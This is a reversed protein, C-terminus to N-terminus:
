MVFFGIGDVEAAAGDLLAKVRWDLGTAMCAGVGLGGGEAAPVRIESKLVEFLVGVERVEEGAGELELVLTFMVPPVDICPAEATSESSSAAIRLRSILVFLLRRRGAAWRAHLQM